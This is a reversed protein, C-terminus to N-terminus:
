RTPRRTFDSSVCRLLHLVLVRLYVILASVLDVPRLGVTVRCECRSQTCTLIESLNAPSFIIRRVANEFTIFVTQSNRSTLHAGYRRNLHQLIASDSVEDIFNAVVLPNTTYEANHCRGTSITTTTPRTMLEKQVLAALRSSYRKM